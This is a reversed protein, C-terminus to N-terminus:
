TVYGRIGEVKVICLRCSGTPPLDARACLTPIYIGSRRAVDLITEGPSFSVTKGNMIMAEAALNKKEALEVM